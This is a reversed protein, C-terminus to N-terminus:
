IKAQAEQSTLIQGGEPRLGQTGTLLRDRRPESESAPGRVIHRLDNSILTTGQQFAVYVFARDVNESVEIIVGYIARMLSDNEDVSVTRRPAQRVWYRLIRIENGVDDSEGLRRGLQQLYEGAILGLADVVLTTRANILRELLRNIHSNINNQPNLLHQFVNTDIAVENRALLQTMGRAGLQLGEIIDAGFFEMPLGAEMSGDENIDLNKVTPMNNNKEDFTFFAVSVDEHNLEGKAVLRRLRLLINDSHTEIISGVQRQTWLGPM